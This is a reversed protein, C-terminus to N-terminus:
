VSLASLSNSSVPIHIVQCALDSTFYVFMFEEGFSGYM